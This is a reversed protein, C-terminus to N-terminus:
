HRTSRRRPCREQLHVSVRPDWRRCQPDASDPDNEYSGVFGALEPRGQEGSSYSDGLAVYNVAKALPVRLTSAPEPTVIRQHEDVTEFDYNGDHDTDLWVRLVDTQQRLVSVADPPVRFRVDVYGRADTACRDSYGPSPVVDTPPVSCMVQATRSPGALMSVGVPTNAIAVRRYVPGGFTHGIVESTRTRVALRLSTYQGARSVRDSWPTALTVEFRRPVGFVSEAGDESPVQTKFDSEFDLYPEGRDFAGDRDADVWVLLQHVQGVSADPVRVIHTSRGATDGTIPRTVAHALCGQGAGTSRTVTQAGVVTICHSSAGLSSAPGSAVEVGIPMGVAEGPTGCTVEVDVFVHFDGAHGPQAIDFVDSVSGSLVVGECPAIPSLGLVSGDDDVITAVAWTDVLTAGSPQSLRISFSEDDEATSDDTIPVTITARSRDAPVSLTGSLGQYDSGPAATGSVTAWRLSIPAAVPETGPEVSVVFVAASDGESVAADSVSLRALECFSVGPDLRIFLVTLLAAPVCGTLHNDHLWLSTLNTLSGIEAPVATLQNNDLWLTTLNTLSGIEAPVATLQNNDLWLTTLNTLSGIEAPVATLQNNDLRLSILNTLSGIEAPVATLQNGSLYLWWLNTLSGIEAPVATLQNGSFSLWSLNTLSGIEAPVATLQNGSFSLWRLNTLSGIEAPVATLQNGSLYLWWLNTLSGIEAPVATLQNGSLYLETLYTLSGIEAPVATLQNNDLWLEDLYTLSGIEAPVATLQNDSLYLEDLYTLSGIEAPVSGSLGNFDLYLRTINGDTDATVGYWDAVPAATDWNTSRFWNPGDTADYLAVLAARQAAPTAPADRRPRSASAPKDIGVTGVGVFGGPPLSVDRVVVRCGSWGAAASHECAAFDVAFAGGDFVVDLEGLARYGDVGLAASGVLMVEAFRGGEDAGVAWAAGTPSGSLSGAGGDCAKAVSGSDLLALSWGELAACVGQDAVAPASAALVATGDWWGVGPAAPAREAAVDRGPQSNAPESAAASVWPAALGSVALLVCVVVRTLARWGRGVWRLRFM